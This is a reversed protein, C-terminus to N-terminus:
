GARRGLYLYGPEFEALEELAALDHIHVTKARFTALDRDRLERLLRNTHVPTFGLAEGLEVQSVPFAFGTGEALGVVRVRYLLECFLHAVRAIGSRAGLNVLWERHVSADVMTFFWFIRAFRIDREILEDIDAHHLKVIRCPTIASIDHDLSELPYSHLDVFDGPIHFEMIQRSGQRTDKSRCALGDILLSSYTIRRGESVILDGAAFDVTEGMRDRLLGENEASFHHRVKITEILKEIM